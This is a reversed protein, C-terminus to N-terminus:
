AKPKGVFSIIKGPVCIEKIVDIAALQAAIKPDAKAVAIAEEKGADAPLRVTGRLKGNIQM